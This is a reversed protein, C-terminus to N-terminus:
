CKTIHEMKYVNQLKKSNDDQFSNTIMEKVRILDKNAELTTFVDVELKSLFNLVDNMTEM